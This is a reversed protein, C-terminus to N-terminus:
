REKRSRLHPNTMSNERLFNCKPYHRDCLKGVLLFGNGKESRKSLYGDPTEWDIHTPCGYAPWVPFFGAAANEIDAAVIEVRMSRNYSEPETTLVYFPFREVPLEASIAAVKYKSKTKQTSVELSKRDFFTNRPRIDRFPM